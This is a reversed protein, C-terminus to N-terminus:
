EVRVHAVIPTVTVRVTGSSSGLIFFSDNRLEVPGTGSATVSHPTGNEDFALVPQGNINFENLAVGAFRSEPGFRVRLPDPSYPEQVPVFAATPKTFIGVEGFGPEIVVYHWQGRGSARDRAFSIQSALLKAAADVNTSNSARLSSIAVSAVVGLVLVVVMIETLTFGHRALQRNLM